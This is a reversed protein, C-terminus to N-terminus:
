HLAISSIRSWFINKSPNFASLSITWMQSIPSICIQSITVFFLLNTFEIRSIESFQSSLRIMLDQRGVHGLRCFTCERVKM